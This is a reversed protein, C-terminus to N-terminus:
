PGTVRAEVAEWRQAQSESPLYVHLEMRHAISARAAWRDAGVAGHAQAQVLANGIAAAEVPGAVVTLGSWRGAMVLQVQYRAELRRLLESTM